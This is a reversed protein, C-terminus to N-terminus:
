IIPRIAQQSLQPSEQNGRSRWAFPLIDEFHDQGDGKLCKGIWLKHGRNMWKRHLILEKILIVDNFLMFIWLYVHWIASFISLSSLRLNSFFPLVFIFSTFPSNHNEHQGDLYRLGQNLLHRRIICDAKTISLAVRVIKNSVHCLFTWYNTWGLSSPLPLRQKFFSSLSAILTFKHFGQLM